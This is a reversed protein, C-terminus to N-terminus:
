IKKDEAEIVVGESDVCSKKEEEEDDDRSMTKSYTLKWRGSSVFASVKKVNKVTKASWRRNGQTVEEDIFTLRTGAHFRLGWRMKELRFLAGNINWIRIFNHYQTKNKPVLDRFLRQSRKYHRLIQYKAKQELPMLAEIM